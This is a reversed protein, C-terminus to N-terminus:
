INCIFNKNEKTKSFFQDVKKDSSTVPFVGENISAIKWYSEESPLDIGIVAYDGNIANACVLSM